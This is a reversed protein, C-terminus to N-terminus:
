LRIGKHAPISDILEFETQVSAITEGRQEINSARITGVWGDAAALYGIRHPNVGMIRASTADVAPFNRGMVVVGARHPTGMIPGDGEMGVVGDVIAFHPRVTSYIDLITKHIGAFHLVNKPWGYFSGPMVGFLNKMSLTVGTWHHTKMKAMSVIWDVEDLLRPLILEKLGSRGGANAVGHCQEYNFDVFRIRDEALVEALGSEELLFLSDRCHGPGEAVLVEAAGCAMFAEVAGRVVSPHTSIHEAGGHTEVVNPKLLIRKSKLEDPSIGLERFGSRITKSIDANYGSVRGIYTVARRRRANWRRVLWPGCLVGAGGAALAGLFRRRTWGTNKQEPREWDEL